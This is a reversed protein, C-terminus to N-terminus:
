CRTSPNWPRPTLWISPQYSGAVDERNFKEVAREFEPKIRCVKLRGQHGELGQSELMHVMMNSYDVMPDRYHPNSDDYLKIYFPLFGVKIKKM